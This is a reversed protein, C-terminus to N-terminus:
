CSVRQFPKKDNPHGQGPSIWRSQGQEEASGSSGGSKTQRRGQGVRFGTDLEQVGPDRGCIKCTGMSTPGNPRGIMWHHVCDSDTVVTEENM